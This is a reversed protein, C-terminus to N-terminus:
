LADMSHATIPVPMSDLRVNLPQFECTCLHYLITASYRDWLGILEHHTIWELADFTGAHSISPDDQELHGLFGAVCGKCLLTVCNDAATYIYFRTLVAREM